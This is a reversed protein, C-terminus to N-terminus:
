SIGHLRDFHELKQRANQLQSLAQTIDSKQLLHTELTQINQQIQERQTILKQLELELAQLNRDYEGQLQSRHQQLGQFQIAQDALCEEQQHLVQWHLYAEEISQANKLYPQLNEFEQRVKELTHQCDEQDRGLRDRQSVLFSRHHLSRQQDQEIQRWTELQLQDQAQQQQLTQIEAQLTQWQQELTHRQELQQDFEKLNERLIQAQTNFQRVREKAKEALRDYQDLKLLDALM